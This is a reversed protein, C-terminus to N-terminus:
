NEFYMYDMYYQNFDKDSSLQLEKANQVIKEAREKANSDLSYEIAGALSSNGIAQIKGNFQEPVLGIQIAKKVNIKLGFGGALFITGIDDYEVGFRKILIEVGARIASKALQVERIDKQTFVIDKGNKDTAIKFGDKSYKEDILGTEDILGAKMLEATIEIVGTGCIGVPPDEKITKYSVNDKEISVSSIAGPVSGIGCSINGGEFAPGAATSCVLIKDKNGIAMEGNTGIDILMSVKQSKDFASVLLGSTIDAGVFTSLGPLITVSTQLYDSSFIEKFSKEIFDINVPTFPFIGLTECSYGMLLHTMTTNGVISIGKVKDKLINTGVMVEKIGELLDRVISKKLLKGKDENSAWIRSIVDAGYIRQKNIRTHTNLIRGNPVGVLNIAITTTGIDIAIIYYDEQHHNGEKILGKSDSVIEFDLEDEVSPIKITCDQAPYAHCALRIGQVIEDRSLLKKDLSSIAMNGEIIQVKCKGCRGNGGCVASMYVNHKILTYLLNEGKQCRIQIDDNGEKIELDIYLNNDM